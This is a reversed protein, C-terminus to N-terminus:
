TRINKHEDLHSGVEPVFFAITAPWGLKRSLCKRLLKDVSQYWVFAILVRPATSLGLPNSQGGFRAKENVHLLAFM